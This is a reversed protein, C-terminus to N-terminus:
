GQPEQSGGGPSVKLDRHIMSKAWLLQPKSCICAVKPQGDRTNLEDVDTEGRINIESRITDDIEASLPGPFV